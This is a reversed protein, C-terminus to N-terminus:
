WPPLSPTATSNTISTEPTSASTENVSPTTAMRTPRDPETRNVVASASVSLQHQWKRQNVLSQDPAPCNWSPARAFDLFRDGYSHLTHYAVENRSNRPGI